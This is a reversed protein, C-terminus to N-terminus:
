LEPTRVTKDEVRKVYSDWGDTERIVDAAEYLNGEWTRLERIIQLKDERSVLFDGNAVRDGYQSLSSLFSKKYVQDGTYSYLLGLVSLRNIIYGRKFNTRRLSSWLSDYKDDAEKLLAIQRDKDTEIRALGFKVNASNSMLTYKLDTLVDMDFGSKIANLALISRTYYEDAKKVNDVYDKNKRLNQDMEKVIMNVPIGNKRLRDFLDSEAKIRSGNYLFACLRLRMTRDIAMVDRNIKGKLILKEFANFPDVDVEAINQKTLTEDAYRSYLSLINEFDGPFIKLKELAIKAHNNALKTGRTDVMAKISEDQYRANWKGLGINLLVSVIIPIAFLLNKILVRYVKSEKKLGDRILIIILMVSVAILLAYACIMIISNTM